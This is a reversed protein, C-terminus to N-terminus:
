FFEQFERDFFCAQMENHEPTDETERAGMTIINFLAPDRIQPKAVIDPQGLLWNLYNPDALPEDVARDKYKGFPVIELNM